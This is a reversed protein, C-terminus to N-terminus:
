MKKKYAGFRKLAEIIRAEDEEHVFYRTKAQPLARAYDNKITELTYAYINRAAKRKSYMYSLLIYDYIELGIDSINVSDYIVAVQDDNFGSDWLGSRIRIEEIDIGLKIYKEATVTEKKNRYKVDFRIGVVKNRKKVKSYQIDLDTQENIEKTATKLVREEFNSIRKYKDQDIGLYARLDEIEFERYDEGKNEYQKLLEYIRISYSSRMSLINELQYQTYGKTGKKLIDEIYPLLDKNIYYELEYEGETVSPSNILRIVTTKRKRKETLTEVVLKVDELAIATKKLYDYFGKHNTSDKLSSVDLVYKEFQNEQHLETQTMILAFLKAENLSMKGRSEILLNSKSVKDDKEKIEIEM